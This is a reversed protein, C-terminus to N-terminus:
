GAQLQAIKSLITRRGRGAEEHRRVDELEDDTLGDLRPVVQSASLSDYDPIALGADSPAPGVPVPPSPAPEPMGAIPTHESIWEDEAPETQESAIGGNDPARGPGREEDAAPLLGLGRLASEIEGIGSDIRRGIWSRPGGFVDPM